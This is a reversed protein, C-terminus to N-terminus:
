FLLWPETILVKEHLPFAADTEIRIRALQGRDRSRFQNQFEEPLATTVPTIESIYGIASRRGSHLKVRRDPMIPFLYRRPLYALVYADGSHISLITQGPQFADGVSPITAGITGEIPSGVVGNGYLNRLDALATQADSIALHMSGLQDKLVRNEAEYQVLQRQANFKALLAGNYSATSVIRPGLLEDFQDFAQAAERAMTRALPLLEDVTEAHIRHEAHSTVLRANSSSLEALKELLNSSQLRLLPEGKRVRKGATVHVEQVTALYTMSVSSRDRLVLGDARLFILDGFLYNLGVVLLIMLMGLYIIRGSSNTTRRQDSRLNDPRPRKRLAKLMVM